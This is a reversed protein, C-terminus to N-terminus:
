ASRQYFSIDTDGYHRVDVRELAGSKEPLADRRSHEVVVMAGDTLAGELALRELAMVALGQGYPPDVFALNFAGGHLALGLAGKGRSRRPEDAACPLAREAPLRLLSARSGLELAQLNAELVRAVQPDKEVFVVERAGRSLAEIGLAGSGAFLDLVRAGECRGALISFFSEKVRDATPRVRTGSPAALRRGGLSGAIIRM